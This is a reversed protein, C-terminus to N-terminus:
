SHCALMRNYDSMGTPSEPMPLTLTAQFQHAGLLVGGDLRSFMSRMDPPLEMLATAVAMRPVTLCHQLQGSANTHSNILLAASM